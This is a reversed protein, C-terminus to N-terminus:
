SHDLITVMRRLIFHDVSNMSKGLVQLLSLLGDHTQARGTASVPWFGHQITNHCGTILQRPPLVRATQHHQDPIWWRMTHTSTTVGKSLATGTAFGDRADRPQGLLLTDGNVRKAQSRSHGCREAFDTIQRTTLEEGRLPSLFGDLM